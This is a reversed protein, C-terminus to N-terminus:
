KLKSFVFKLRECEETFYSWASSLLYSRDLIITLPGRKYRNDVHSHLLLDRNTPKVFVKTEIRRARNLLQIDLFPLMGDMWETRVRRHLYICFRTLAYVNHYYVGLCTEPHGECNCALHFCYGCKVQFRAAKFKITKNLHCM